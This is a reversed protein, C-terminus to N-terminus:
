PFLSLFCFIWNCVISCMKLIVCLIFFLYIILEILCLTICLNFVKYLAYIIATLPHVIFNGSDTVYKSFGRHIGIDSISGQQEKDMCMGQAHRGSSMQMKQEKQRFHEKGFIQIASHSVGEGGKTRQEIIMRLPDKQVVRNLIAAMRSSGVGEGAKNQKMASIVM